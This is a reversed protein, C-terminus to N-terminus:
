PERPEIPPRELQGTLWNMFIKSGYGKPYAAIGHVAVKRCRQGIELGWFYHALSRHSPLAESKKEVGGFRPSGSRCFTRFLEIKKSAPTATRNYESDNEEGSKEYSQGARDRGSGVELRALADMALISELTVGEMDRDVLDVATGNPTNTTSARVRHPAGRVTLTNAEVRIRALGIAVRHTSDELKVFLGPLGLRRRDDRTQSTTKSVAEVLVSNDAGARSAALHYTM